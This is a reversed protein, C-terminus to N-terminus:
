VPQNVTRQPLVVLLSSAKAVVGSVILHVRYSELVELRCKIVGLETTLSEDLIVLHQSALDLVGTHSLYLVVLSALHRTLVVQLPVASRKTSNPLLSRRVNDDVLLKLRV